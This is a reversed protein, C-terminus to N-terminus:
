FNDVLGFYLRKQEFREPDVAYFLSLRENVWLFPCNEEIFSYLTEFDEVKEKMTLDLEQGVATLSIICLIVIIFIFNLKSM